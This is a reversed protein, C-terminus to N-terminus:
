LALTLGLLAELTTLQEPHIMRPVHLALYGGVLSTSPVRLFVAGEMVAWDQDPNWRSLRKRPSNNANKEAGPSSDAAGSNGQPGRSSNEKDIPELRRLGAGLSAGWALWRLPARRLGIHAGLTVTRLQAPEYELAAFSVGVTAGGYPLLWTAFFSPGGGVEEDSSGENSLYDAFLAARLGAGIELSLNGANQKEDRESEQEYFGPETDDEGLVTALQQESLTRPTSPPEGAAIRSYQGPTISVSREPERTNAAAVEGSFVVVHTNELDLSDVLFRTGRVGLTANHTRVSSNRRAERPKFFFRAKGRAMKLAASFSLGDNDSFSVVDELTISSNQLLTHSSGDAFQIVISSNEETTVTDGVQLILKPQASVRADGRLVSGKGIMKLIVVIPKGQGDTAGASHSNFLSLMATAIMFFVKARRM